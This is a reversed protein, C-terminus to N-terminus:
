RREGQLLRRTFEDAIRQTAVAMPSAIGMVFEINVAMADDPTDRPQDGRIEELHDQCLGLDSVPERGCSIVDVLTAWCGRDDEHDFNVTHEDPHSM